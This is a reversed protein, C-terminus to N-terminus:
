KLVEMIVSLTQIFLIGVYLFLRPKNKTEFADRILIFLLIIILVKDMMNM